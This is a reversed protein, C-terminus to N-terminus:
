ITEEESEEVIEEEPTEEKVELNIDILQTNIDVTYTVYYLGNELSYITSYIDEQEENSIKYGLFEVEDDVEVIVYITDGPYAYTIENLSELDSVIKYSTIQPPTNVIISPCDVIVFGVSIDHTPMEFTATDGDITGIGSIIISRCYSGEKVSPKITVTEGENSTEPFTSKSVDIYDEDIYSYIISRSNIVKGEIRIQINTSPAFLSGDIKLRYVTDSVKDITLGNVEIKNWTIGDISYEASSIKYNEPATLYCDISEYYTNKDVGYLKVDDNDILSLSIHNVDKSEEQYPSFSVRIYTYDAPMLFSFTVINAKDSNITTKYDQGNINIFLNNINNKTFEYTALTKITISVETGVKVRKDLQDCEVEIFQESLNLVQRILYSKIGDDSSKNSSISSTSTISSSGAPINSSTSIVSTPSSNASSISSSNKNKKSCSAFTLLCALSFLLIQKKM